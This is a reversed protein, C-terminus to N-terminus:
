LTDTTFRPKNYARKKKFSSEQMDKTDHFVNKYAQDYILWLPVFTCITRGM